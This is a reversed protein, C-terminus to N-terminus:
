LTPPRTWDTSPPVLVFSQAGGSGSLNEGPSAKPSSSSRQIERGECEFPSRPDKQTERAQWAASQFSVIWMGPDRNEWGVESIRSKDTEMVAQALEKYYIEKEIHMPPKEPSGQSICGSVFYGLSTM